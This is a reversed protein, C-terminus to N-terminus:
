PKSVRCRPAPRSARHSPRPCSRPHKPPFRLRTRRRHQFPHRLHFRPSSRCRLFLRRPLSRLFLRRPLSRLCLRHPLSRLCLRHPLCRLCPRRQQLCPPCPHIRPHPPSPHYRNHRHTRGRGSVSRPTRYSRLESGYKCRRNCTPGARRTCPHLHRRAPRKSRRSSRCSCCRCAFSATRHRSGTPPGPRSRPRPIRASCLFLPRTSWRFLGCTRRCSRTPCSM